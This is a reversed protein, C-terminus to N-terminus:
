TPTRAHAPSDTMDWFSGKWHMIAGHDSCVPCWWLIEDEDVQESAIHGGCPRRQPRGICRVSGPAGPQPNDIGLTAMVVLAALHEALRKAPGTPPAIRGRADLFHRLDTTMGTRKM